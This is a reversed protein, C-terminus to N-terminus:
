ERKHNEQKLDQSVEKIKISDKCLNAERNHKKMAEKEILLNQIVKQDIMEQTMVKKDIIELTVEEKVKKGRILHIAEQDQIQKKTQIVVDEKNEQEKLARQDGEKMEKTVEPDEEVLVETMEKLVVMVGEKDVVMDEVVVEQDIGVKTKNVIELKMDQSMVYLADDREEKLKIQVIEQGIVRKMAISAFIVKIVEKVQEKVEKKVETEIEEIVMDVEIAMDVEKVM